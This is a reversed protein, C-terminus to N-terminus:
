VSDLIKKIEFINSNDQFNKDMLWLTNTDKVMYVDGFDRLNEQFSWHECVIVAPIRTNTVNKTRHLKWEIKKIMDLYVLAMGGFGSLIKVELNNSENQNIKHNDLIIDEWTLNPSKNTKFFKGYNYALIDYYYIEKNSHLYNTFSTFMKGNLNRNKSDLLAIISKENIIINTDLWLIWETKTDINNLYWNTLNKRALMINVYKNLYKLSNKSIFTLNSLDKELKKLLEVTKDTSNNEYIFWRVRSNDLKKYIKPFIHQFYFENNHCIMLIDLNEHLM